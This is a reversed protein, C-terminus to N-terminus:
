YTNFAPELAHFSNLDTIYINAISLSIHVVLNITREHVSESFFPRENMSVDANSEVFTSTANWLMKVPWCKVTQISEGYQKKDDAHRTNVGKQM